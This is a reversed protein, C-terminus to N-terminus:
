AGAIKREADTWPALVVEGKEEELTVKKEVTPNM